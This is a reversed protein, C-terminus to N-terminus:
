NQVRYPGGQSKHNGTSVPDKIQCHIRLSEGAPKPIQRLTIWFGLNIGHGSYGDEAKELQIKKGETSPKSGLAEHMRPM